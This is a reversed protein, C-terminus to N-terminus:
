RVMNVLDQLMSDSTTIVKSNASFARQAEIMNVFQKAIDVNSAELSSTNVAGLGSTQPLGAILPDTINDTTKTYLNNNAKAMVSPDTTKCMAIQFLATRVGAADTGWYVGNSDVSATSTTPVNITALPKTPDGLSAGANVPYGQVKMGSQMVLNGTADFSFEGDRTYAAVGAADQVMFFGNGSIALDFPNSTNQITGQNWDYNVNGGLVGGGIEQGTFGAASQNILSEFSIQSSKFATTGTNAINDGIVSMRKNCANLGTVASYMSNLM